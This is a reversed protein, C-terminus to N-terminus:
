EKNNHECEQDNVLQEIKLTAPKSYRTNYVAAVAAQESGGNAVTAGIRLREQLTWSPDVGRKLQVHQLPLSYSFYYM